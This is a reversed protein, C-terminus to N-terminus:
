TCIILIINGLFRKRRAGSGLHGAHDKTLEHAAFVEVVGPGPGGPGGPGPPHAPAEVAAHFVNSRLFWSFM